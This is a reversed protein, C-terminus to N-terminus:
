GYKKKLALYSAKERREYDAIVKAEHDLDDQTKPLWYEILPEFDVNDDYGHSCEFRVCINIAGEPVRKAAEDLIRKVEEISFASYRDFDLEFTRSKHTESNM